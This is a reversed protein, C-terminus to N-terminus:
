GHQVRAAPPLCSKSAFRLSAAVVNYQGDDSWEQWLGKGNKFQLADNFNPKNGHLETINGVVSWRGSWSSTEGYWTGDANLCVYTEGDVVDISYSGTKTAAAAWAPIALTAALVLTSLAKM